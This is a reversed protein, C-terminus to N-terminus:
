AGRYRIVLRTGVTKAERLMEFDGVRMRQDIVARPSFFNVLSADTADAEWWSLATQDNRIQVGSPHIFTNFSSQESSIAIGTTAAGTTAVTGSAGLDFVADYPAIWVEGTAANLIFTPNGSEDYATLAGSTMKIGTNAIPSTQVTTGTIPDLLLGSSAASTSTNGLEDVMVIKAYYTVGTALGPVVIEGAGVLPMGARTFTGTPSTSITAYVFKIQPLMGNGAWRIRLLGVYQDLTPAGPAAAVSIAADATATISDSPVSVGGSTSTATVRFTWTEGNGVRVRVNNSVTTTIFREVTEDSRLGLIDYGVVEVPNGETDLTPVTWTLDFWAEPLFGTADWAAGAVATLDTPPTPRTANDAPPTLTITEPASADGPNGLRDYGRLRVSYEGWVGGMNLILTGAGVLPTGTTTYSLGGDTSVEAVVYALRLPAPESGLVGAWVIYISGVGDTYLDAIQPGDLDVPPALTTVVAVDSWDGYIGSSSRGRVRIEITMDIDLPSIIASPDNSIAAVTWVQGATPRTWVEYLDVILPTGTMSTTVPSWTLDIGSKPSGTADWFGTSVGYVGLPSSPIGNSISGPSRLTGGAIANGGAQSIKRATAALGSPILDGVTITATTGETNRTIAVQSVRAKEPATDGPVLIWDGPRFTRYPFLASPTMNSSLDYNFTREVTANRNQALLADGLANLRGQDNVGTAAATGELHGFLKNVTTSDERTVSSEDGRVFVRSLKEAADKRVPAQDATKFLGSTSLNIIPDAGIVAWDSGFGPNYMDLVAKGTTRDFHSRYEVLVDTVMGDLLQSLPTDRTAKVSQVEQWPTNASTTTSTFSTTIHPGWGRGKSQTVYFNILDGPSANAWERDESAVTKSLLFDVYSMGSYTVVQTLDTKDSQVRSLVFLMGTDIWQSGDFVDAIVVAEELQKQTGDDYIDITTELTCTASASFTDTVNFSLYPIIEDIRLKDVDFRVRRLRIDYPTGSGVEPYIPPTRFVIDTSKSGIVTAGSKTTVTITIAVSNTTALLSSPPTWSTTTAVGSAITGSESGSVWTVDHTFSPSARTINIDVPGSGMINPTPGATFTSARPISTLWVAGSASAAGFNISGPNAEGSFSFPMNLSGDANHTVTIQGSLMTYTTQTRFDFNPHSSNPAGNISIYFGVDHITTWAGWARPGTNTVTYDYQVRSTNSNTDQWLLTIFM